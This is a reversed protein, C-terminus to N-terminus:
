TLAELFQRHIEAIDNAHDTGNIIRRANVPDDHTADFYHDLGVGTFVGEEMGKFMVEAAVDPELALSADRVMDVGLLDQMKQYNTRWTLQVLGRGYYVQGTEPDPVGYPKGVGHGFEEIPQMTHATEWKATALMYALWRIDKPERDWADLIANCGDVQSQTMSGGFPHARAKEFFKQRDIMARLPLM